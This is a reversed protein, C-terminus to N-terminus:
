GYIQNLLLLQGRCVSSGSLRENITSSSMTKKIGQVMKNLKSSPKAFVSSEWRLGRHSRSKEPEAWRRLEAASTEPDHRTKITVNWDRSTHKRHWSEKITKVSNHMVRVTDQYHKIPTENDQRTSTVVRPGNLTSKLPVGWQSTYNVTFLYVPFCPGVSSWWKKLCYLCVHEWFSVTM